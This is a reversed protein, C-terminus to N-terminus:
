NRHSVRDGRGTAKSGTDTTPFPEIGTTKRYACWTCRTKAVHYHLANQRCQVLAKAANEIQKAWADATTREGRRRFAGQFQRKFPTDKWILAAAASPSHKVKTQPGHVFTGVRIRDVLTNIEDGGENRYRGAFPHRGQFLLQYIMVALAFRDDDPTRDQDTFAAGHLGPATYEPTGVGCRHLTGRKGDRIQFSDTDILAVQGRDSALTNRSNLDGVVHGQTHIHAVALALNRAMAMLHLLTYPKGRQVARRRRRTPNFYAGIERYRDRDLRLMLYGVTKGKQKPRRIFGQPWALHYASCKVVPPPNEVMYQLKAAVAEPVPQRHLLKAAVGPRNSAPYVTGERGSGFPPGLRVPNLDCDYLATLRFAPQISTM